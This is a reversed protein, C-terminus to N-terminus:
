GQILGVCPAGLTFDRHNLDADQNNTLPAREGAWFRDIEARPGNGPVIGRRWPDAPMCCFSLVPLRGAAKRVPGISLLGDNGGTM